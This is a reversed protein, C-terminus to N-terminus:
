GLNVHCNGYAVTNIQDELVIRKDDLACLAKKNNKITYLNYDIAQITSFTAYVPRKDM